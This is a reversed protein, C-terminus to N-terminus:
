SGAAARRPTASAEAAAGAESAGAESAGAEPRAARAVALVDALVGAATVAPGAGPGQVVIPSAAYRDTTIEVLNDTGGLRGLPSAAPVAEVGVRLLPARGERPELRGVYRLRREEAEARAVRDAWAADSAALADTVLTVPVSAAEPPVLSEVEVDTREAKFGASRALILLKRAVDEGSLDDRPDPETYGQEHAWRAATSFSAGREIQGFLYTMTGSLVGRISRVRDGTAVLSEVTGVVPLGAGATTEYRYHVRGGAALARLRDYLDQSRTNALKSPTVVSVGAALLPEVLDAVEPSGTADVFVTPRAAAHRALTQVLADLDAAEPRLDPAAADLGSAAFASTRRTCAGILRLGSAPLAAIQGLLAGGVHGVGALYVDLVPDTPAGAVPAAPHLAPNM